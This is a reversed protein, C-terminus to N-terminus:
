RIVDMSYVTNLQFSGFRGIDFINDKGALKELFQPIGLQIKKLSIKYSWQEQEIINLVLNRCDNIGPLMIQDKLHVRPSHLPFGWGL